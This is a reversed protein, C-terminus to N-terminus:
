AKQKPPIKLNKKKKNVACGASDMRGLFYISAREWKTDTIRCKKPTRKVHCTAVSHPM